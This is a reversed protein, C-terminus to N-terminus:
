GSTPEDLFLLSPRCLLEMAICLRKREGGSIGKRRTDGVIVNACHPIRLLDLVLKERKLRDEVSIRRDMRLRATYNIVEACTLEAHILDDQMVYGSVSKLDSNNYERGNLTLVGTMEM